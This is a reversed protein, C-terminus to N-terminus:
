TASVYYRCGARSRSLLTKTVFGRADAACSIPKKSNRRAGVRLETANQRTRPFETIAPRTATPHQEFEPAFAHRTWLRGQCCRRDQAEGHNAAGRGYGRVIEGARCLSGNSNLLRPPNATWEAAEPPGTWAPAPAPPPREVAKVTWAPAPVTTPSPPMPPAPAAELAGQRM